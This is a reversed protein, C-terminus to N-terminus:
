IAYKPDERVRTQSLSDATYKKWVPILPAFRTAQARDVFLLALDTARLNWFSVLDDLNSVDGIYFGPYDRGSQVSYHRRM